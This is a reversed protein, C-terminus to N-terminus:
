EEKKEAAEEAESLAKEWADLSANKKPPEVGLETLKKGIEEKKEAASPEKPPDGEEGKWIGEPIEITKIGEIEKYAKPVAGGVHTVDREPKDGDNIYTANRFACGNEKAWARLLANPVMALIFIIKKM